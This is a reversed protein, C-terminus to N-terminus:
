AQYDLWFSTTANKIAIGATDIVEYSAEDGKTSLIKDSGMGAWADPLPSMGAYVKAIHERGKETVFTINRGGDDTRSHDVFVMTMSDTPFSGVLNGNMRDMEAFLGQDFFKVVKVTLIDGTFMKYQRFYRGYSLYGKGQSMEMIEKEGLPTYYQYGRADAKIARDFEQAGGTGTYLVLEMPTHDVRNTLVSHVTNNLKSVTLSSYTSHNGTAFIQQKVGAPHPVPEDTDLDMTLIEGDSTRNYESFWLFHEKAMRRDREWQEMEWPMWLNTTGGNDLPFQINTVKNSINGAIQMSFRHAGWQNKLKGPTMRNSATGTSRELGITPAGMVWYRGAVLAAASLYATKSSTIYTLTYKFKNAAIKEPEREVRVYGDKDPTWISYYKHARGTNFYAEFTTGGLGPKTNNTNVLGLFKITHSQRGVVDWYYQSDNMESKNQRSIMGNGETLMLMPSMDDSDKGFLYTLSANLRSAPIHGHKYLTNVSSHQTSDYNVINGIQLGPDTM